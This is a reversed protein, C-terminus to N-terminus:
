NKPDPDCKACPKYMSPKNRFYVNRCSNIEEYGLPNSIIEDFTEGALMRIIFNCSYVGCESDDYQYKKTNFRYIPAIKRKNKHYVIYKDIFRKIDELPPHGTSDCYYIEGIEKANNIYLPAWHSGPYGYKDHNFIVGLRTFGVGFYKDFKIQHLPCFTLKDCDLPVAGLFKFDPYIFQYQYMVYNIDSTSLWENPNKPGEHRFSNVIINNYIEKMFKKIFDQEILCIDNMKCQEFRKFLENLLYKKDEKINILSGLSIPGESHTFIYQNYAKAIEVLQKTSLCTNNEHDYKGPACINHAM